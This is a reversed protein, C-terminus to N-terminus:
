HITPKYLVYYCVIEAQISVQSMSDHETTRENTLIGGQQMCMNEASTFTQLETSQSCVYYTNISGVHLYQCM